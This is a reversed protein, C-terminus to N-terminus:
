HCTFSYIKSLDVNPADGTYLTGFKFVEELSYKKALATGQKNSIPFDLTVNSKGKDQCLAHLLAEAIDLNEAYLPGIRYGNVSRRIAGFGQVVNNDVYALSTTTGVSIWAALFHKRQDAYFRADYEVLKDFPVSSAQCIQPYTCESIEIMGAYRVNVHAMKFGYNEYKHALTLLGDVRVNDGGLYNMAHKFIQLGYGRGRYEKEVVYYGIIAIHDFKVGAACCIPKGDLLGVFYGAPDAHQFAISDNNGPNWGQERAMSIIWDVHDSSASVIEINLNTAM